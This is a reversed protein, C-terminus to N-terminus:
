QDDTDVRQVGWVGVRDPDIGYTEAHVRFYRIACKCDEIAAPFIAEGSLRYNITACM